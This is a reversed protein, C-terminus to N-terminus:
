KRIHKQLHADLRHLAEEQIKELAERGGNINCIRNIEMRLLDSAPSTDLPPPALGQDVLHMKHVHADITADILANFYQKLILRQSDLQEYTKVRSLAETL